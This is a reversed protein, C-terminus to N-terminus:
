ERIGEVSLILEVSAAAPGLNAAIDMGFDAPKVTTHGLFGQRLGGWPDEGGGVHTLDLTVPKTVGNFTLDGTLQAANGGGAKYGASSFHVTPHTDTNLFDGSRIHKDREAQHTDVSAM